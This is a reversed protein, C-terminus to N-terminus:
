PEDNWEVAAATTTPDTRDPGTPDSGTQGEDQHLEQPREPNDDYKPKGKTGLRTLNLVESVAQSFRIAM